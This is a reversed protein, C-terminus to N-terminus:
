ACVGAVCPVGLYSAGRQGGPGPAGRAPARPDARSLCWGISVNGAIYFSSLSKRIMKCKELSLCTDSLESSKLSSGLWKLSSKYSSIWSVWRDSQWAGRRHGRNGAGVREGDTRCTRPRSYPCSHIILLFYHIIECNELNQQLNGCFISCKKQFQILNEVFKAMKQFFNAFNRCFKM